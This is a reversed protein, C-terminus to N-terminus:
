KGLLNRLCMPGRGRLNYTTDNYTATLVDAGELQRNGATVQRDLKAKANVQSIEYAGRGRGRLSYTTDNYTATLVDAGELQLNCAQINYKLFIDEINLSIQDVINRDCNVAPAM